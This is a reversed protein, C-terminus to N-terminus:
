VFGSCDRDRLRSFSPPLLNACSAIRSLRETQPQALVLAQLQAHRHREIAAALSLLKRESKFARSDLSLRM